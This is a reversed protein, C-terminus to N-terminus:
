ILIIWFKMWFKIFKIFLINIYFHRSGWASTGVVVFRGFKLYCCPRLGSSLMTAHYSHSLFHPFSKPYMAGRRGLFFEPLGKLQIKFGVRWRFPLGKLEIEIYDFHCNNRKWFSLSPLYFFLNDLLYCIMFCVNYM